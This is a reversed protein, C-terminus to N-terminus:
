TVPGMESLRLRDCIDSVPVFWEWGSSMTIRVTGDRVEDNARLFNGEKDGISRVTGTVIDGMENIWRVRTNHQCWELITALRTVDQLTLTTM